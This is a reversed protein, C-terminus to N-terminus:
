HNPSTFFPSMVLSGHWIIGSGKGGESMGLDTEPTRRGGLAAQRPRVRVQRRPRGPARRGGPGAPARRGASASTGSFGLSKWPNEGLHLNKSSKKISRGRSFHCFPWKKPVNAHVSQSEHIIIEDVDCLHIVNKPNNEHVDYIVVASCIRNLIFMHRESHFKTSLQCVLLRDFWPHNKHFTIIFM